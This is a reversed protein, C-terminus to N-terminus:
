GRKELYCEVEYATCGGVYIMHVIKEETEFDIGCFVRLSDLLEQDENHIAHKYRQAIQLNTARM